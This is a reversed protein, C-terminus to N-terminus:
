SHQWSQRDWATLAENRQKSVPVEIELREVAYHDVEGENMDGLEKFDVNVAVPTPMAEGDEAMWALHAELAERMLGCIKTLTKGTSFCGPIDPAFGGYNQKGHEYVVLFQQKM